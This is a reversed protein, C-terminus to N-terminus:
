ITSSQRVKVSQVFFNQASKMHDIMAQRAAAHDRNDIAEIIQLHESIALEARIKTHDYDWTFNHDYILSIVEAFHSMIQNNTLEGLASHYARDLTEFEEYRTDLSAYLQRHEDGLRDIREWIGHGQPKKFLADIAKLEFMERIEFVQQAYDISTSTLVWYRQNQRQVLGFRHIKILFERITAYSVGFRRALESENIIVGPRANKRFVWDMFMEEAISEARRTENEPFYDARSPRRLLTFGNNERRAIQANELDQVIKRATTRSIGVARALESLNGLQPVIDINDLLSNFQKKFLVNPRSM